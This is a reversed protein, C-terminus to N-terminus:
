SHDKGGSKGPKKLLAREERAKRREKLVSSEKALEGALWSKLEPCICLQCRSTAGSMLYYDASAEQNKDEFRGSLKEEIIQIQRVVLEVGASALLDYQDYCAM